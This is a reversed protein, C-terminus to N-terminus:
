KKSQKKKLDRNEETLDCCLINLREIRKEDQSKEIKLKAVENQLLVIMRADKLDDATFHKGEVTTNQINFKEDAQRKCSDVVDNETIEDKMQQETKAFRRVDKELDSKVLDNWTCIFDFDPTEHPVRAQAMAAEIIGKIESSKKEREERCKAMYEIDARSLDLPFPIDMPPVSQVKYRKQGLAFNPLEKLSYDPVVYHYKPEECWKIIKAAAAELTDFTRKFGYFHIFADLWIIKEKNKFLGTKTTVAREVYFKGNEERIRYDSLKKM